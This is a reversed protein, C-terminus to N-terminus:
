EEEGHVNSIQSKRLTGALSLIGFEIRGHLSTGNLPGTAFSKLIVLQQKYSQMLSRSIDTM